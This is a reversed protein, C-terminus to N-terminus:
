DQVLVVSTEDLGDIVDLRAEDQNICRLLHAKWSFIHQKAHDVIFTLEEIIDSAINSSSMKQLAEDIDDLVSALLECRDCTELHDHECISQYDKDKPDSLAYARCHDPITSQKSVHM